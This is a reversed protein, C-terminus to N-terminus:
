RVCRVNYTKTYDGHTLLGLTFSFDVALGGYWTPDFQPSASWYIGSISGPFATPDVALSPEQRDVLGLLEYEGPLRWGGGALALNKCYNQASSPFLIDSWWFTTPASQRQWTLKTLTDYVTAGAKDVVFRGVPAKASAQGICQLCGIVVIALAALWGRGSWRHLAQQSDMTMEEFKAKVWGPKPSHRNAYCFM